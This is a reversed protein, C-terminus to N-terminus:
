KPRGVRAELDEPLPRSRAEDEEITSWKPRERNMKRDIREYEERVRAAHEPKLLTGFPANAPDFAYGILGEILQALDGRTRIHRIHIFRHYIGAADDRLWCFWWDADGDRGGQALEVGLDEYSALFGEGRAATGIWMLWHKSTQREFQHWRFGCAKLWDETLPESWEELTISTM